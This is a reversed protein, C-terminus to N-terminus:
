GHDHAGGGFLGGEFITGGFIGKPAAHTDDAM